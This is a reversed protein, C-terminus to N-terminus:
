IRRKRLCLPRDLVERLILAAAASNPNRLLNLALQAAPNVRKTSGSAAEVSPPPPPPPPAPMRAPESTSRAPPALEDSKPEALPRAVPLLRSEPLPEVPRTVPVPRVLRPPRQVVPRATPLTQAPRASEAPRAMPVDAPQSRMRALERTFRDQDRDTVLEVPRVAPPRNQAAPRMQRLQELRMQEQAEQIKRFIFSLFSLVVMAFVCIFGEM